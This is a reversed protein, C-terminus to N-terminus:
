HEWAPSSAVDTSSNEVWYLWKQRIPQLTRQQRKWAAMYDLKENISMETRIIAMNENVLTYYRILENHADIGESTTPGREAAIRLIEKAKGHAILFYQLRWLENPARDAEDLFTVFDAEAREIKPLISQRYQPREDYQVAVALFTVAVCATSALVAALKNQRIAGFLSAALLRLLEGLTPGQSSTKESRLEAMLM